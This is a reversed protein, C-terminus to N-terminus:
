ALHADEEKIVGKQELLHVVKDFRAQLVNHEDRWTETRKLYRDVSTQLESFDGRVEERLRNLGDQLDQRSVTYQPLRKAIADAVLEADSSTLASM